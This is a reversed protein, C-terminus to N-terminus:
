DSCERDSHSGDDDNEVMSNDGEPLVGIGDDADEDSSVHENFENETFNMFRHSRLLEQDDEERKFEKEM